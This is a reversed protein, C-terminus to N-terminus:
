IMPRIRGGEVMWMSQNDVTMISFPVGAYRQAFVHIELPTDSVLWGMAFGVPTQGSGPQAMNRDFTLCGKFLQDRAVIKRGGDAVTYRYHGGVPVEGNKLIAAVAWVLLGEGDPDPLCILNYRPACLLPLDPVDSAVLIRARAQELEAGALPMPQIRRVSGAPTEVFDVDLLACLTGDKEGFFRVLVQEGSGTVIWGRLGDVPSGANAAQMLDTARAAFLDQVFMENGLRELTPLDFRRIFGAGELELQSLNDIFVQTQFYYRDTPVGYSFFRIKMRKATGRVRVNKGKLLEVPDGGLRETLESAPGPRIVITLCRQDRYDAESNLFIFGDQRGSGKVEFEFVGTVGEAPREAAGFIAEQPPIVRPSPANEPEALLSPGPAPAAVAEPVTGAPTVVEDQAPARGAVLVAASLVLIPFSTHM